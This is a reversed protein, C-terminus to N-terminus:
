AAGQMLATVYQLALRLKQADDAQVNQLAAAVLDATADAIIAKAAEIYGARAEDKSEYLRGDVTKYATITQADSAAILEGSPLKIATVQILEFM